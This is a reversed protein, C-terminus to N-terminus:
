EREREGREIFMYEVGSSTDVNGGEAINRSSDEVDARGVTSCIAIPRCTERVGWKCEAERLCCEREADCGEAGLERGRRDERLFDPMAEEDAEAEPDEAAICVRGRGVVVKDDADHEVMVDEDICMVVDGLATFCIVVGDTEGRSCCCCCCPVELEPLASAARFSRMAFSNGPSRLRLEDEDTNPIGVVVVVVSILRSWFSPARLATLNSAELSAPRRRHCTTDLSFKEEKKERCCRTKLPQPIVM